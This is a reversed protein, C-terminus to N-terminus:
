SMPIAAECNICFPTSATGSLFRTNTFCRGSTVCRLRKAKLVVLSIWIQNRRGTTTGGMARTQSAAVVNQWLNVAAVTMARWCPRWLVGGRIKQAAMHLRITRARVNWRPDNPLAQDLLAMICVGSLVAYNYMCQPCSLPTWLDCLNKGLLCWVCKLALFYCYDSIRPRQVFSLWLFTSM